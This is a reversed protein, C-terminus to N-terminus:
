SAVVRNELRGIREIEIVIDDGPALFEGRPVGCGAPTGTLM